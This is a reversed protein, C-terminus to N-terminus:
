YQKKLELLKELSVLTRTQKDDFDKHDKDMELALLTQHDSIKTTVNELDKIAANLENLSQVLKPIYQNLLWFLAALVAIAVGQNLFIEIYEGM